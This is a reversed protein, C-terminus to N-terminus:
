SCVPRSCHLLIQAFQDQSIWSLDPQKKIAGMPGINILSKAIECSRCTM